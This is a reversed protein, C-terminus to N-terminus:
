GVTRTAGGFFGLPYVTCLSQEHKIEIESVVKDTDAYFILLRDGDYAHYIARENPMMKDFATIQVEKNQSADYVLVVDLYVSPSENYLEVKFEHEEEKEEELSNESEDDFDEIVAPNDMDYFFHWRISHVRLLTCLVM